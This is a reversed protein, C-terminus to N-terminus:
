YLLTKRIIIDIDWLRYRLIAIAIAAPFALIAVMLLIVFLASDQWVDTTLNLALLPLYFMLFLGCAFLLWKIQEREVAAARRFRVFISAACFLIFGIFTIGFIPLLIAVSRESLFGIPNTMTWSGDGPSLGPTFSIVGLSLFFIVPAARLVWRWRPSPPQGTPFLLIILLIPFILLLWSWSDFWLLTLFWPSPNVPAATFTGLYVEIPNELTFAISPLMLLWGILNEPQYSIILAAVLAFGIPFLIWSAGSVLELIPEASDRLALQSILTVLAVLCVLGFFLWAMRTTWRQRM